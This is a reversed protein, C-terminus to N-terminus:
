EELGLKRRFVKQEAIVERCRAGLDGGPGMELYAQLAKIAQPVTGAPRVKWSGAGCVDVYTSWLRDARARDEPEQRTPPLRGAEEMLREVNSNMQIM